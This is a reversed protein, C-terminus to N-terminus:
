AIHLIAPRLVLLPKKTSYDAGRNSEPQDSPTVDLISFEGASSTRTPTDKAARAIWVTREAWYVIRTKEAALRPRINLM